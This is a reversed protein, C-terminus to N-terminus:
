ATPGTGRLKQLALTNNDQINKVIRLFNAINNDITTIRRDMIVFQRNWEEITARMAEANKQIAGRHDREELKELRAVVDIEFERHRDAEESM